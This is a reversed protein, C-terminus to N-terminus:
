PTTIKDVGGADGPYSKGFFKTCFENARETVSIAEFREPYMEVASPVFVVDAEEAALLALDREIDRPYSAFDERPGFQTPNIFICAVVSHSEARAGRVLSLHGEHLYGMTPVFGVPEALGRRLSRMEAIKEVVKVPTM